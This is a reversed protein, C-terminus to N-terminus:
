STEVGYKEEQCGLEHVSSVLLFMWRVYNTNLACLLTLLTVVFSINPLPKPGQTFGLSFIADRRYGRRLSAPLSM